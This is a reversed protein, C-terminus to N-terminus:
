DDCEDDIEDLISERISMLEKINNIALSTEHSTVPSKELEKIWGVVIGEIARITGKDASM